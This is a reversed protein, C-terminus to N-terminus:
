LLVLIKTLTVTGGLVFSGGLFANENGPGWPFRCIRASQDVCLHLALYLPFNITIISVPREQCLFVVNCEAFHRPDSLLFSCRPNTQVYVFNDVEKLAKM